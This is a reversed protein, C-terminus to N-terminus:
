KLKDILESVKSQINENLQKIAKNLVEDPYDLSNLNNRSYDEKLTQLQKLIKQYTNVELMIDRLCKQFEDNKDKPATIYYSYFTMTDLMNCYKEINDIREKVSGIGYASLPQRDKLLQIEGKILSSIEQISIQKDCHGTKCICLCLLALILKKM